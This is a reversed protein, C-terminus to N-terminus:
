KRDYCSTDDVPKRGEEFVRMTWYDAYHLLLTLPEERQAVCKNDDIYQGDHYVIAQSETDSLPVYKTILYLSRVALGMYVEDPNVKYTKNLKEVEWKNDNPLYRPKGPMGVKGADHFLGVIVCSEESIEPALASRLRLLTETVGVSHQLLGSKVNLHFRTSAPSELWTTETEMMRVFEEFQTRRKVVKAKLAEYRTKLDDM